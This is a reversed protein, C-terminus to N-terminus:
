SASLESKEPAFLDHIGLLDVGYSLPPDTIGTISVTPWNWRQGPITGRITTRLGLFTPNGTRELAQGFLPKLLAGLMSKAPIHLAFRVSFGEKAVRLAVSCTHGLSKPCNRNRPEIFVTPHRECSSGHGPQPSCRTEDHRREHDHQGEGPGVDAVPASRLRIGQEVADRRDHHGYNGM